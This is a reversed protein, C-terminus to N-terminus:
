RGRRPGLFQPLEWQPGAKALQLSLGTLLSTSPRGAAAVAASSGKCGSGRHRRKSVEDGGEPGERRLGAGCRTRPALAPSPGASPAHSRRRERRKRRRASGRRRPHRAEANHKATQVRVRTGVPRRGGFPSPIISASRSIASARFNTQFMQEAGESIKVRFPSPTSRLQRGEM